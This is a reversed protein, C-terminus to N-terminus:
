IYIYIIETCFSVSMLHFFFLAFVQFNFLNNVKLYYVKTNTLQKRFSSYSPATICSHEYYDLLSVITVEVGNYIYVTTERLM